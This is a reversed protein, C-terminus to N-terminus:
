RFLFSLCAPIHFVFDVFLLRKYCLWNTLRHLTLWHSTLRHGTLRHGTLGTLGHHLLGHRTLGHHLLRLCSHDYCCTLMSTRERDIVPWVMGHSNLALVASLSAHCVHSLVFTGKTPDKAKYEAENAAPEAAAQNREADGCAVILLVSAGVALFDNSM